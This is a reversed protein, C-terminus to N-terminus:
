NTCRPTNIRQYLVDFNANIEAAKAPTGATFTYPKVAVEDSCTSVLTMESLCFNGNRYLGPGNGPLSPDELVELRIGTVGSIPINYVVVYTGTAPITGAALVSNDPLMTFTMGTPGTVIPNTLVTWNANVNGGNNLGDAFTDRNDKTASLRFRGLLHGPNSHNFYMTFTLHNGNVDNTTEWVATQNTTSNTPDAIAWGSDDFIGDVAQDVSFGSQSFTATGNQFQVTAAQALGFILFIVSYVAFVRTKM